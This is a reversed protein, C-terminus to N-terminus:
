LTCVHIRPLYQKINNLLPTCRVKFSGKRKELTANSSELVNVTVRFYRWRYQELKLPVNCIEGKKCKRNIKYHKCTRMSLFTPKIYCLMEKQLFLLM